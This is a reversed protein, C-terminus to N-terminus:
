QQVSSIGFDAPNNDHFKIADERVRKPLRGGDLVCLNLSDYPEYHIIYDFFQSGNPHCLGTLSRKVKVVQEEEDLFPIEVDKLAVAGIFIGAALGSLFIIMNKM